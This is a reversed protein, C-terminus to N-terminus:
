HQTNPILDIATQDARCPTVTAYGRSLWYNDTTPDSPDNDVYQGTLWYYPRGFPDIRKAYQQDWYGMSARTVKLGLIKECKPYNINLCVGDPLGNQLMWEITKGIFPICPSFDADPSFDGYSFGVSPVGRFTGDFVVGMTGSYTVSNGSNFGHNIGALLLTPKRDLVQSFAMQMCDVPTGGVHYIKIGVDDRVQTLRLPTEITLASSQGSQHHTPAVAVVDGYRSAVNILTALGKAQYGDDNGILILPKEQEM